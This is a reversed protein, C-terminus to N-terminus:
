PCSNWYFGYHVREGPAFIRLRNHSIYFLTTMMGPRIDTQM